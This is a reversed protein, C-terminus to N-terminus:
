KEKKRYKFVIEQVTESYCGWLDKEGTSVIEIVHEDEPEPHFKDCVYKNADQLTKFEKGEFRYFDKM